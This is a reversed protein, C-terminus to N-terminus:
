WVRYQAKASMDKINGSAASASLDTSLMTGPELVLQNNKMEAARQSRFLEVDQSRLVLFFAIEDAHLGFEIVGPYERQM